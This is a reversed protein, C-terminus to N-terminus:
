LDVIKGDLSVLCDTVRSPISGGSDSDSDPTMGNSWLAIRMEGKGFTESM